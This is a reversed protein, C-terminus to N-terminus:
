TIDARSKSSFCVSILPARKFPSLSCLELFMLIALNQQAPYCFDLRFRNIIDCSLLPTKQKGLCWKAPYTPGNRCRAIIGRTLFDSKTKGPCGPSSFKQSKKALLKRCLIVIVNEEGHCPIQVNQHPIQANQCSSVPGELFFKSYSRAM